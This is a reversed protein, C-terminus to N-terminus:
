FLEVKGALGIRSNFIMTANSQDETIAKVDDEVMNYIILGTSTRHTLATSKM